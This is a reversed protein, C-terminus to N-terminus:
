ISHALQPKQYEEYSKFQESFYGGKLAKVAFLLCGIVNARVERLERITRIAAGRKTADANFVLVTADVIRALAKTASVLLVPPGDFIIYDYNERQNLALQNMQRCGLLEAPNSPLPGSDIIDFGEIGTSRIVQHYESLGTLLTSLGVDLQEKDQNDNHPFPFVKHLAPRWFNTDILLVRKNETAFATALNVAASTKGDGAMGSTILLVKASEADSSLTLNTRFRRYSESVISYPAQRVVHCLDVDELLDDEDADPIIGLLPIHLYMAVDKPTRVLDNLLEILFALGIGIAFGLFTGAPVTIKLKPFSVELPKPALGTLQVKPTEPDDHIIKYKEIQLKIANKTEIREDRIKKRREYQSRAFDFDQKKKTVKEHMEMSHEFRRQMTVLRDQANNLNANRTQEAIDTRRKQKREKTENVREQIEKVMRHNEGFKIRRGALLTELVVLQQTLSIVTPDREILDEVQVNIPGEAQRELNGITAQLQTIELQLDRQENELNKLRETYVDEYSREELDTYGTTRKLTDLSREAASLETEVRELQKNLESLKAAVESQATSGRSSVFMQSLTNVIKASEEADGCTMSVTVFEADRSASVGLHKKLDKMAKLIRIDKIDGFNKFWKTEQIDDDNLLEQLTSQQRIFSAMTQRYGYQIDKAALAPAIRTPDKEGPSLVKIYTVATYRPYYILLLYWAVIGSIIGLVTLSAILFVHRRIIGIIEKPTIAMAAPAPRHAVTTRPRNIIPRQEIM